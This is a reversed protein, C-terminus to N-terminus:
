FNCKEILKGAYDYCYFLLDVYEFPQFEFKLFREDVEVDDEDSDTLDAVDPTRVDDEAFAAM